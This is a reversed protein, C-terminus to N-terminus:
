KGFTTFTSKNTEIIEPLKASSIPLYFETEISDIIDRAQKQKQSEVHEIIIGAQFLGTRTYANLAGINNETDGKFLPRKKSQLKKTMDETLDLTTDEHSVIKSEVQKLDKALYKQQSSIVHKLM